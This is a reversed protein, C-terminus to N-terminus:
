EMVFLCKFYNYHLGEELTMDDAELNILREYYDRIKSELSKIADERTSFEEGSITNDQISNLMPLIHSAKYKRVLSAISTRDPQSYEGNIQVELPKTQKFGQLNIKLFAHRVDSHFRDEAKVQQVEM